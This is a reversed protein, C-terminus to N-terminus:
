GAPRARLVGIAALAGVVVAIAFLAVGRGLELPLGDDPRTAVFATAALAGTAIAVIATRAVLRPIRNAALAGAVAILVFMAIMGAAWTATGLREWRAGGLAWSLRGPDGFPAHTGLPGISFEGLSWWRGGQVSLAFSSAAALAAVVLFWRQKWGM